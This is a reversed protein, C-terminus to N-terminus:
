AFNNVDDWGSPITPNYSECEDCEEEPGPDDCLCTSGREVDGGQHIISQPDPWLL